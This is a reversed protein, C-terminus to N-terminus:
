NFTLDSCGFHLLLDSLFSQNRPLLGRAARGGGSVHVFISGHCFPACFHAWSAISCLLAGTFCCLVSTSRHLLSACFHEQSAVSCLLAGIFCHLVSTSGYFLPACFHDGHIFLDCFHEWSVVSCWM